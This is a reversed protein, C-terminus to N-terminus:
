DFTPKFEDIISVLTDLLDEIEIDEINNKLPHYTMGVAGDYKIKIVDFDNISITGKHKHAKVRHNTFLDHGGCKTALLRTAHYCKWQGPDM